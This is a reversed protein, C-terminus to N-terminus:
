QTIRSADLVDFDTVLAVRHGDADYGWYSPYSGDGWGSSFAILNAGTGEDLVLDTWSWTHVYTKMLADFLEEDDERRAAALEARAILSRAADLDMFCGTGADVPYVFVHGPQLSTLAKGQPVAIEWRAVPREGLRLQAFAVRQDGGPFEAVSVIVPYRGLPVTDAFPPMQPIALPDCAVIQGSTIVLEGLTHLHLTCTEVEDGEEEDTYEVVLDDQFAKSYDPESVM